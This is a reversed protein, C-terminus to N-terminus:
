AAGVRAKLFGVFASFEEVWAAADPGKILFSTACILLFCAITSATLHRLPSM